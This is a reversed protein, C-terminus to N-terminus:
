TNTIRWSDEEDFVAYEIKTPEGYVEPDGIVISYYTASKDVFAGATEDVTGNRMLTFTKLMDKGTAQDLPAAAFAPVNLGLCMALALALSLAKKKM